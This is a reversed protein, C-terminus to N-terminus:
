KSLIMKRTETFESTQLKYYYVGSALGSANFDFRYSGPNLSKSILDSVEKGLNDYIILSTYSSKMIAFEISTVPNFPNPYNQSLSYGNPAETSINQIGISSPAYKIIAIDYGTSNGLSNGTTYANGSNDACVTVGIDASNSPGNYVKEWKFQGSSNLKVTSIDSTSYKNGVIYVNASDDLAIDYAIYGDASSGGNYNTVWQQTGDANYKITCYKNSLPLGNSGTQGTVFVNGSNDTAVGRCIDWGEASSYNRGWAIGGAANFKVVAYDITFNGTGSIIVNSNIDVSMDIVNQNGVNNGWVSAWVFDLNQEYKLAIFSLSDGNIYGGIIIKGAGDLGIRRAGESRSHYFTQNILNGSPGFKILFINNLTIVNTSYEGTVYVNGTADTIIDFGGNYASSYSFLYSWLQTGDASYKAVLAKNSGGSYINSEGTIYVNGGNDVHIARGFAGTNTPSRYNQVWQQVGNSNYKVTVAEIEAHNPFSRSRQSGTVYVNGAVDVFMDNVSEDRISDSTFRQAWEQIVQSYMKESALVLFIIILFMTKM